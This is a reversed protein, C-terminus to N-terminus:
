KLGMALLWEGSVLFAQESNNINKQKGTRIRLGSSDNGM